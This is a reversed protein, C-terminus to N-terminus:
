AILSTLTIGGPLADDKLKLNYDMFNRPSTIGDKLEVELLQFLKQAPARGLADDHTFIYLGRCAMLGRSASRDTEFMNTLARWFLDLDERSLGTDKAYSPNVFGYSVYLGYPVMSKRGMQGSAAQEDDADGRGTDDANTLAVRTITVEIPVVMDISRAFTMQIPGRVQGCNWHLEKNKDKYGSKGMNMVAGFARVDFFNDCMWKRAAEVPSASPKMDLAEFARKQQNALIGRNEVYIKYRPEAGKVMDVYNRVKRKLCVDTVLGQMTEPDLRPLNGADPDGNPKGDKVDFLLIFDHRLGPNCYIKGSV